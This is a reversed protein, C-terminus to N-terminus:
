EDSDKVRRGHSHRAEGNVLAVPGYQVLSVFRVKFGRDPEGFLRVATNLAYLISTYPPEREM